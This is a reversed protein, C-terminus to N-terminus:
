FPPVALNILSTIRALVRMSGANHLSFLLCMLALQCLLKCFENGTTKEM